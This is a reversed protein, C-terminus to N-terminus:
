PHKDVKTDLKDFIKSLMTKIDRVDSKYDDKAVYKAPFDEKLKSMDARLEKVASWMERAFWGTVSAVLALAANILIQSEMHIFIQNLKSFQYAIQNYTYIM